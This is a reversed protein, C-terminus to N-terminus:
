RAKSESYPSIIADLTKGNVGHVRLERLLGGMDVRDYANKLDWVNPGCM